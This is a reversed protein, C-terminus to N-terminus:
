SGDSFNRRLHSLATVTADLERGVILEDLAAADAPAMEVELRLAYLSQRGFPFRELKILDKETTVVIKGEGISNVITQWDSATYAHHDPYELVGILDAELKRLMAYFGSPDALGSVALVRAGALALPIERWQGQEIAILARPRMSARLVPQARLTEMQAASLASESGDEILVIADARAIAGLPERLPGAPLMWGNGLGRASNILVLDM